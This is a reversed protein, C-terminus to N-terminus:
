DMVGPGSIEKLPRDFVDTHTNQQALLMETDDINLPYSFLFGQAYECKLNELTRLNESQEVGEAIVRLKM